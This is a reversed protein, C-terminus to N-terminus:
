VRENQCAGGGMKVGGTSPNKVWWVIKKKRQRYSSGGGGGGGELKKEGVKKEVRLNSPGGGQVPGKKSNGKVLNYTNLNRREL